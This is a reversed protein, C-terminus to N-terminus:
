ELWREAAAIMAVLYVFASAEGLDRVNVGDFPAEVNRELYPLAGKAAEVLQRVVDLLDDGRAVTVTGLLEDAPRELLKNGVGADVLFCELRDIAILLRDCGVSKELRRIVDTLVWRTREDGFCERIRVVRAVTKADTAPYAVTGAGILERLAERLAEREAGQLERLTPSM